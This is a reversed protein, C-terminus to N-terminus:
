NLFGKRTIKKYTKTCVYIYRTPNNMLKLQNISRKVSREMRLMLTSWLRFQAAFM